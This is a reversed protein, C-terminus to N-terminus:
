KIFRITIPYVYFHGRDAELAAKIMLIIQVVILIPLVVMGVLAIILVSAILIYISMSIQFNLAERSHEEVAPSQDKKLLWILLPALINGLPFIFGAFGGLHSFLVWQKENFTSEM